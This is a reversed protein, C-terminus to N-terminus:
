FRTRPKGAKPFLFIYPSFEAEYAPLFLYYVCSKKRSCMGSAHHLSWCRQSSCDRHRRCSSIRRFFWLINLSHVRRRGLKSLHFIRCSTSTLLRWLRRRCCRRCRRREWCWLGIHRRWWWWWRRNLLSWYRRLRSSSGRSCTLLFGFACVCM